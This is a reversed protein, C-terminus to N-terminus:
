EYGGQHQDPQAPLEGDGYMGRVLRARVLHGLQSEARSWLMPGAFFMVATLLWGLGTRHVDTAGGYIMGGFAMGSLTFTLFVRACPAFARAVARFRILTVIWLAAFPVSVAAAATNLRHAVLAAAATVGFSGLTSLRAPLGLRHTADRIRSRLRKPLKFPNWLGCEPCRCPDGTLGRLRYGCALCRKRLWMDDGARRKM